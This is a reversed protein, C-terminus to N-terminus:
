SAQEGTWGAYNEAMTVERDALDADAKAGALFSLTQLPTGIRNREMVGSILEAAWHLLDHALSMDAGDQPSM